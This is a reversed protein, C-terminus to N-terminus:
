EADLVAGPQEQLAIRSVVGYVFAKRGKPIPPNKGESEAKAVKADVAQKVAKCLNVLLERSIPGAETLGTTVRLYPIAAAPILGCDLIDNVLPRYTGNELWRAYMAQGMAARDDRSAFAIAMAFTGHSVKKGVMFSLQAGTSLAGMVEVARDTSVHQLVINSENM